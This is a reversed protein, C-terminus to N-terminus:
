KKIQNDDIIKNDNTDTTSKKIKEDKKVMEDITDFQRQWNPYLFPRHDFRNDDPAYNEAHYSPTMVTM